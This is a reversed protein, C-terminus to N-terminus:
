KHCAKVTDAAIAKKVDNWFTAEKELAKKSLIKKM